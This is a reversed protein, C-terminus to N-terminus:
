CTYRYLRWAGWATAAALLLPIANGFIAFITLGAPQPLPADVVGRRDLGLSAVVRGMGDVVASIGTDATRVLPLGEEITRLRATAFHQYPGTATGFWSDNTLNLLWQPRPGIPTTVQGPFIVEFCILPSFPPLGPVTITTLGPGASFDVGGTLAAFPILSRFPMFEGFPVLHSKDYVGLIRGDPAIVYLSNFITVTTEARDAGTILMGNPPAATAAIRRHEEDRDLFYAVASEGWIVTTVDAPRDALSMNVYDRLHVERMGSLWKDAEPINPQVLRLKVGPVFQTPSLALRAAGGGGMMALLVLPSLAWLWAKRWRPAPALVAPMAAAAVTILSLGYTGVISVSQLVAIGAPTKSEAWITAMPNWPFGTFIWSRVWEMVMWAAAFVLVRAALRRTRDDPMLDATIPPLLHTLGCVAAFFVAMGFTLGLLAPVAFIGFTDADVMFANTIWSLGTLFHGFGFAWGVYAAIHWTTCGELLILLVPLALWLAPIVHFPPLAATAVMGACFAAGLRRWGRLAGVWRVSADIIPM